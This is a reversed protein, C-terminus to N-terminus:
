TGFAVGVGKDSGPSPGRKCQLSTTAFEAGVLTHKITDVFWQGDVKAGWGAFSPTHELRLDNIVTSVMVLEDKRRRLGTSKNTWSTGQLDETHAGSTSTSAGGV